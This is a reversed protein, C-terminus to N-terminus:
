DIVLGVKRAKKEKDKQPQHREPGHMCDYLKQGGYMCLFNHKDIIVNKGKGMAIVVLMIM